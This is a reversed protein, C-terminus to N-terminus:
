IKSHIVLIYIWLHLLIMPDPFIPLFLAFNELLIKTSSYSKQAVLDIYCPQGIILFLLKKNIALLIVSIFHSMYVHRRHKRKFSFNLISQCFCAGQAMPRKIEETFRLSM